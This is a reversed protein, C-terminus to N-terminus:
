LNWYSRSFIFNNINEQIPINNIGYITNGCIDINIESDYSQSYCRQDNAYFTDSIIIKGNPLANLNFTLIEDSELDDLIKPNLFKVNGMLSQMEFIGTKCKIDIINESYLNTIFHIPILGFITDTFNISDM